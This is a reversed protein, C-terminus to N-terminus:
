GAKDLEEPERTMADRGQMKQDPGCTKCERQIDPLHRRLSGQFQEWRAQSSWPAVADSTATEEEIHLTTTPGGPLKTPSEIRQPTVDPVYGPTGGMAAMSGPEIPIEDAPPTINHDTGIQHAVNGESEWKKRYQKEYREWAESSELAKSDYPPFSEIQKKNLDVAFHDEHKAYPHIMEAPVIFRRHRLWGATDVVAYKILGDSHDFIVDDIHGLKEDHSGYLEAGRLDDAQDAFKFEHLTGYHAM